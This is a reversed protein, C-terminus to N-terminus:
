ASLIRKWSVTVLLAVVGYLAAGLLITASFGALMAVVMALTAGLVSTVANAGSFAAVGAPDAAHAIRLGAPFPVGMVFGIPLVAVITLTVRLSLELPVPWRILPPYILLSLIACAAVALAFRPVIKPLADISIRNSYLSGLGSGVLLTAVVTILSLVPQGLLLQFRQILPSEILLLAVGVGLLGFYPAISARKWHQNDTRVFFFILWSLYVFAMIGSIMLMSNLTEPLGPRFQYFFPNDDTPPTYNFDHNTRIYDELTIEGALMQEFGIEMHPPLYLADAGRQHAEENTWPTHTILVVSSRDLKRQLRRLEAYKPDIDACFTLLFAVQQDCWLIGTKNSKGEVSDLQNKGKFRPKGHKGFAYDQVVKFARSALTLM